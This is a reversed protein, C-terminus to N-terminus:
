GELRLDEVKQMRMVSIEYADRYEGAETDKSFRKFYERSQVRGYLKVRNGVEFESAWQAVRGWAICPIYDSKGYPRNVAILLDTIQRGLPTKRFVPPKCLYGDLYILNANTVEELEDEDDYINIATVFLFLDLHRRGDEGLKNYSRFQGAVEVWKGELSTKMRERGILLDSVVIPVLDEIGSLREVRVRTRYFKEWLVEHSFDFEAEIRGSVFVKNFESFLKETPSNEERRTIVNNERRAVGTEDSM